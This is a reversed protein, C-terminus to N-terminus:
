GNEIEKETQKVEGDSYPPPPEALQALPVGMLEISNVLMKFTRSEASHITGYKLVDEDPHITLSPDCSGLADLFAQGLESEIFQRFPKQLETTTRFKNLNM